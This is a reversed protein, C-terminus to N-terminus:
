PDIDVLVHSYVDLTMSKRSHGLQAAVTTVPVGQAIMLSAYRHRLDHPHRHAIGATRCARTMANGLTDSGAGPFVLREPTRDERPVTAAVEAMVGEPVAVWRRAAATKGSKVRFRSGSEDVEGWSLAALEGVRLGTAELVRLPLRWHTPVTAIITAVEAATPPDVIAPKARPLRVRADRAPNDPGDRGAFDLVARLTGLYGRVSAPGLELSGIWEQVDGPTITAPDRPGFVPLISKMHSALVRATAPALDVRSTEYAEAYSAFTRVPVPRACMAELALAPNQGTALLGGILDRRAKAEKMTKFSGGHTVPWSRGGLRYRVIFRKEGRKTKRTTITLSAM